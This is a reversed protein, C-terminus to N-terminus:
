HLRENIDFKRLMKIPQFISSLRLFPSAIPCSNNDLPNYLDQKQTGTRKQITYTHTETCNCILLKIKKYILTISHKTVPGIQSKQENSKANKPLVTALILFKQM